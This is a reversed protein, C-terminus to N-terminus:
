EVENGNFDKLLGNYITKKSNAFLIVEAKMRIQGKKEYLTYVFEEGVDKTNSKLVYVNGITNGKLRGTLYAALCGMGNFMKPATDGGSFGNLMQVEGMNLAEKIDDGIGSPYGDYQRYLTLITENEYKVHVLSRTGM